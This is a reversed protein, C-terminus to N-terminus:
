FGVVKNKGKNKADYLLKDARRLTTEHSDDDASIATVGISVTVAIDGITLSEAHAAFQSNLREAFTIAQKIETNPLVIVFEDGGYRYAADAERMQERLIDALAVIIEDGKHHGEIDNVSKLNDLDLMLVSTSIDYRNFSALHAALDQELRRRNYLETLQDTDGWYRLKKELQYRESINSAVWLVVSEDDVKFDLAQIRGEFWIPDEPGEDPLGLIDKDSLEYEEVIMEGSTLAENIKRVFYDAKEPELVDYLNQGVLSTGDHYYRVDQGGFLAVYKGSTSLIFVPDPLSDLVSRMQEINM